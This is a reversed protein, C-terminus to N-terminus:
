RAMMKKIADNREANVTKFCPRASVQELWRPLGEVDGVVDWGWVKQAVPRAMAYTYYAFVDAIGFYNGAIWPSFSALKNVAALGKKLVPKVDDAVSQDLERGFFVYGYLRRVQNEIYLEHVKILEAMKAREFHDSISLAPDPICNELFGLIATTESIYGENLEIIPIKGMPSIDLFPYSYGPEIYVEEFEFGKELMFVKVMAYYNSLPMGYLKIM